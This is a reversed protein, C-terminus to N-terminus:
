QTLSNIQKEANGGDSNFLMEKSVVHDCEAMNFWTILKDSRLTNITNAPIIVLLTGLIFIIIMSTYSKAGSFIDNLAMFLVTPIRSRSLRMVSKKNFREGTEGNRIADIPSFKRIKRTCFYSFLVVVAGTAVAAAINILLNDEGSIVIKKSLGGNLLATVPIGVAAGLATGAAAIASYKVIYLGRIARNNIGIAKMVGIERFEEVITFNIVFRLIVMSILILCVSVVLLLAAILMDMLYMLKITPKNFAFITNLGLRNFKNTYDPDDTYVEAYLCATANDSDFFAADNDSVLFRTMGIMPSGYAIDKVYGKVTFEKQVGDQNVTVKSGEQFNNEDSDFMLATVYIEGDNIRTVEENNKDFVKMETMPSLILTQAYELTKGDVSVNKPDIQILRSIRCDYGNEDALQRFIEIDNDHLSSFCYDPTDSMLLFNDLASSSTFLNNASSSTFAAALTVFILLIVNMAKKRKLDKKLISFYMKPYEKRTM